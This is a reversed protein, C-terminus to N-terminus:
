KGDTGPISRQRVTIEVPEGALLNELMTEPVALEVMRGDATKLRLMGATNEVTAAVTVGHQEWHVPQRYFSYVTVIWERTVTLPWSNKDLSPADKLGEKDTDLLFIDAEPSSKLASLPVAFFKEGLGLFGGFALVAYTVRNDEPKLVLEAIKGLTEGQLNKVESGLVKSGKQLHWPLERTAASLSVVLALGLLVSIGLLGIRQM